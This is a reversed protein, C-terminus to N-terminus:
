ARARGKLFVTVLSPCVRLATAFSEDTDIPGDPTPRFDEDDLPDFDDVTEAGDGCDRDAWSRDPDAPDDVAFPLEDPASM